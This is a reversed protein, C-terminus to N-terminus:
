CPKMSKRGCRCCDSLIFIGGSNEPIIPYNNNLQSRYAALEGKTKSSCMVLPTGSAAISSLALLAERCSYTVEDLLTGDLETFIVPKKMRRGPFVCPMDYMAGDYDLRIAPCWM